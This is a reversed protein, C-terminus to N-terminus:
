SNKTGVLLTRYYLFSALFLSGGIGIYMAALYTKPIPSFKRLFIGLSIMFVVLPYSTWSQFAFFCVREKLYQDIRQINRKAFVSFGFAYILLALIIGIFALGFSIRRDVPYLWGYALYCLWIGVGSWMLGAILYLWRKRIAPNLKQAISNEESLNPM